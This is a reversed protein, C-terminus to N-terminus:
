ITFKEIIELVEMRKKYNKNKIGAFSSQINQKKNVNLIM